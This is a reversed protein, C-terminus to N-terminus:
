NGLRVLQPFKPDFPWLQLRLKREPLDRWLQSQVPMLGARNAEEQLQSWDAQHQDGDMENRWEVALHLSDSQRTGAAIATFLFYALLKQGPKFKARTLHFPGAHFGPRLMEQAEKRLLRRSAASNVAWQLGAPGATGSIVDEWNM